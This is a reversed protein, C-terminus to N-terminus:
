FKKYSYYVVKKYVVLMLLNENVKIELKDFFIVLFKGYKEIKILYLMIFYNLVKVKICDGRLEKNWM